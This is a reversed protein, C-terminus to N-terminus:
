RHADLFSRLAADFAEPQELNAFHGAGAMDIVQADDRVELAKLTSALNKNISRDLACRLLLTPVDSDRLTQTHDYVAINETILRVAVPDAVAFMERIARGAARDKVAAGALWGTGTTGLVLLGTTMTRVLARSSTLQGATGFTTLTRLRDPHTRALELGIIGGLSNGVLHTRGVGLHDILALVDQALREVTLDARTPAVPLTSRGHGRLSPAVVFWDDSFTRLQPVFQRWNPGNGHVLLLTPAGAPGATAYELSVGGDVEITHEEM